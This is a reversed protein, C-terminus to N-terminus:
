WQVVGRLKDALMNYLSAIERAVKYDNYNIRISGMYNPRIRKGTHPKLYSKTFQSKPIKTLGSWFQIVDEENHYEHIHVLARFKSENLTFSSRLLSLYTSIMKPDSNVFGLRKFTGKEGETWMFISLILKNLPTTFRIKSLSIKSKKLIENRIVNRRNELTLFAKKRAINQRKIIRNTGSKSLKEKSTWLSATSKSIKFRVSLEGLSLGLRRLRRAEEIIKIPYSM